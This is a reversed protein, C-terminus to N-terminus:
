QLGTLSRHCEKPWRKVLMVQRFLLPPDNPYQTLLTFKLAML